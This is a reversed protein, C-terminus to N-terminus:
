WSGAGTPGQLPGGRGLLCVPDNTINDIISGAFIASGASIVVEVYDGDEPAVGTFEEWSKQDWTNPGYRFAVEPGALTGDAHFARVRGSVGGDLSRVAINARYRTADAPGVIFGLFDTYFIPGGVTPCVGCNQWPTKVMEESFGNTGGGSQDTYIHAVIRPSGHNWPVVVDISGPQGSVQMAELIDPWSQMRGGVISFPMSPDDPGGPIGKAHFVFRGTLDSPALMQVLTHYNSGNRGLNSAVSTLVGAVVETATGTAQVMLSGYRVASDSYSFSTADGAIEIYSAPIVRIIAVPTGCEGVPAVGVLDGQLVPIAPSLSIETPEDAIAYPGREAVLSFTDGVRRFVKIKAAASCGAQSWSFAVHDITGTANAPHSLDVATGAVGGTADGPNPPAPANGMTLQAAASAAVLASTLVLTLVRM